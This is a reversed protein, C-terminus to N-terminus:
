YFYYFDMSFSRYKDDGVLTTQNGLEINARLRLSRFLSYELHLAGLYQTTNRATDRGINASLEYYLRRTLQQAVAVGLYHITEREPISIIAANAAKEYHYRLGYFQYYTLLYPKLGWRYGVQAQVRSANGFRGSSLSNLEYSVRNWLVINKM